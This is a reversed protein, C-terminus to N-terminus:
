QPLNEYQEKIQNFRTFTRNEFYSYMKNQAINVNSAFRERCRLWKKKAFDADALLKLNSAIASYLRAAPDSIHDYSHDVVDDFVDFGIDRLTQVAGKGCLLIPFNCGYISNLTKETILYSAETFSTESIIEVSTQTYLQRLRTEFNTVNDNNNNEYIAYEDNISAHIDNSPLLLKLQEPVVWGSHQATQSADFMCSIFGKSDLNLNALLSLLHARHTRSNRNLSIFHRESNFSKEAVPILRQYAAQQNTIDGGWPIIYVNPLQIYRDLHEMSTLLLFKKNSYFSFLDILYEVMTPTQHTWPNFNDISTLHDKIALVVHSRSINEYLESRYDIENEEFWKGKNDWGRYQYGPEMVASWIYIPDVEVSLQHLLKIFIKVTYSDNPPRKIIPM